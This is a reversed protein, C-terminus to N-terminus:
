PTLGHRVETILANLTVAGLSNFEFDLSTEMTARLYFKLLLHFVAVFIEGMALEPCM